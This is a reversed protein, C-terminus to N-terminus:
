SIDRKLDNLLAKLCLLMGIVFDNNGSLYKLKLRLDELTKESKVILEEKAKDRGKKNKSSLIIGVIGGVAALAAPIVLITGIGALMWGGFLTGIGALGSTVIAAGATGETAMLTILGFGSAVGLAGGSTAGLFGGIKDANSKHYDMGNIIIARIKEDEIQTLEVIEGNAVKQAIEIIEKAALLTKKSNFIEKSM